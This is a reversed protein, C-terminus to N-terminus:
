WETSKEGSFPKKIFKLVKDWTSDANFYKKLMKSIKRSRGNSTVALYM